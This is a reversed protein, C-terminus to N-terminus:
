LGAMYALGVTGPGVNAGVAPSIESFVCDALDPYHACVRDLLDKADVPSNAHLTAMHVPRRDGIQQVVLEALRALSKSRTRVQEVAEIRWDKLELIPKINLATGLFRKAGGIRGGRHLFELTDVAFVVGTLPMAKEALADPFAHTHFDIIM